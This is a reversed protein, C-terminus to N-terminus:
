DLGSLDLWPAGSVRANEVLEAFRVRPVRSVRRCDEAGPQWGLWRLESTMVPEGDDGVTWPPCHFNITGQPSMVFPPTRGGPLREQERHHHPAAFPAATGKLPVGTESTGGASVRVDPGDYIWTDSDGFPFYVALLEPPHARSSDGCCVVPLFPRTPDFGDISNTWTPLTTM